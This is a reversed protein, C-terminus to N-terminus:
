QKAKPNLGISPYGSYQAQSNPKSKRDSRWPSLIHIHRLRSTVLPIRRYQIHHSFFGGSLDILNYGFNPQIQTHTHTYKQAAEKLNSKDPYNTGDGLIRKSAERDEIGSLIMRGMSRLQCSLVIFITM